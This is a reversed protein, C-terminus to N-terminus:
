GRPVYLGLGRIEAGGGGREEVAGGVGVFWQIIICRVNKDSSSMVHHWVIDNGPVIRQSNSATELAAVRTVRSEVAFADDLAAHVHDAVGDSFAHPHEAEGAGARPLAGVFLCAEVVYKRDEVVRDDAEALVGGAAVM